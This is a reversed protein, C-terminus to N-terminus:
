SFCLNSFEFYAFLLDKGPIGIEPRSLIQSTPVPFFILRQFSYSSALVQFVRYSIFFSGLSAELSFPPPLDWFNLKRMRVRACGSATMLAQM